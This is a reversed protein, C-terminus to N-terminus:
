VMFIYPSHLYLEVMRQRTELHFHTPLKVGQSSLGRPLLGQHWNSLHSPPCWLRDPYQPSSIFKKGRGHISGQDHLGCVMVISLWGLDWYRFTCSIFNLLDTNSKGLSTILFFYFWLFYTDGNVLRLILKQFPLGQIGGLYPLAANKPLLVM